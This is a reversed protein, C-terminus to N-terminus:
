PLLIPMEANRCKPSRRLHCNIMRRGNPVVTKCPLPFGYRTMRYIYKVLVEEETTKLAQFDEHSQQRTTCKGSLCTSLTNHPVDNDSAIKRVSRSLSPHPDQEAHWATIAKDIPRM